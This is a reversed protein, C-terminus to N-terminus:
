NKNGNKPEFSNLASHIDGKFVFNFNLINALQGFIVTLLNVSPTLSSATPSTVHWLLSGSQSRSTAWVGRVFTKNPERDYKEQISSFKFLENSITEFYLFFINWEEGTERDSSIFCTGPTLILTCSGLHGWLIWLKSRISWIFIVNGCGM